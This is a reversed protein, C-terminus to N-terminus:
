GSVLNEDEHDHGDEDWADEDDVEEFEDYEDERQEQMKLEYWYVRAVVMYWMFVFGPDHVTGQKLSILFVFASVSGLLAIAPRMEDDDRYIRFLGILARVTFYLILVYVTAGILGLETLAEILHNHPYSDVLGTTTFAGAGRGFIWAFPDSMWPALATSAIRYRTMVGDTLSQMTWRDINDSTIFFQVSVYLLLVVFGVGFGVGLYGMSNKIRRAVPFFLFSILGGAIVQGRAGSLLGMGFGFMGVAIQFPVVLRGVGKQTTLVAFLLLIAGLEGLALANAQQTSSYHIMLRTGYFSASPSLIIGLLALSGLVMLPFRLQKFDELSSILLPAMVMFLLAYQLRGVTLTWGNALDATWVLSIFSLAQLAIVLKSVPNLAGGLMMPDKLFRILLTVAVVGAILYNFLTRYTIFIPFYSQLTQEIVPFSVILVFALWPRVIAAAFACILVILFLIGLALVM